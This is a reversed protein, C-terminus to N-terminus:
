VEDTDEMMTLSVNFPKNSGAVFDIKPLGEMRLRRVIKDADDDNFICYFPFRAGEVRDQFEQFEGFEAETMPALTIEFSDLRGYYQEALTRASATRRTKVGPYGFEAAYGGTAKIDFEYVKAPAALGVYSDARANSAGDDQVVQLFWFLNDEVDTFEVLYFGLDDDDPCDIYECGTITGHLDNGSADEWKGAEKDIGDHNYEAVCGIQVLTVNDILIENDAHGSGDDAYILLDHTGTETATFEESYTDWSGESLTVNGPDILATKGVRILTHSLDTIEIHKYDFTIRYKIGATCTFQDNLRASDSVGDNAQIRLTKDHGADGSDYGGTITAGSGVWNGATDMDSDDSTIFSTMSGWQDAVPIPTHTWGNYRALAEAASLNRNWLRFLDINEKYYTINHFGFELHATAPLDLDGGTKIDTSLSQSVGDTYLANSTGNVLTWIIHYRTNATPSWICKVQQLVNGGVKIAADLHTGNYTIRMFNNSDKYRSFLIPVNSLDPMDIICEIAGDGYGWDLDADDSVVVKDAIGNLRLRPRGKGLLGSIIKSYTVETASGVADSTHALINIMDRLALPYAVPLNQGDIVFADYTRRKTLATDLRWTTREGSTDVQVPREPYGDMVNVAQAGDAVSNGLYDTAGQDEVTPEATQDVNALDPVILKMKTPTMIPM